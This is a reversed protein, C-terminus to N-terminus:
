HEQRAFSRECLVQCLVLALLSGIWIAPQHGVFFYFLAEMPSLEGHVTSNLQFLPFFSPGLLGVYCLVWFIIRGFKYPYLILVLAQLLLASLLFVWVQWEAILVKGLPITIPPQSYRDSPVSLISGPIHDLLQQTMIKSNEQVVLEPAQLFYIVTCIPILLILTYLLFAKSRYLIPRDVARTLFFETGAPGMNTKLRNYQFKDPAIIMSGFIAVFFFNQGLGFYFSLSSHYTSHDANIIFPIFSSIGIIMPLFWMIPNLLFQFKVLTWFQKTPNM